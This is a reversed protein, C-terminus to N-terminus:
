SKLHDWGVGGFEKRHGDVELWRGEALPIVTGVPTVKTGTAAEVEEAAESAREPDITFVLEYDEGGHLALELPDRDLEVGELDVLPLRESQIIVGVGSADCIHRLDAAFGDSVDIMSSPVFRRLVEVEKVRPAPRNHAAVLDPRERNGARMLRLGAASAGLRGTVCVTDGVRAGGREVYRRGAPNGLMAVSIVLCQSRSIDGGVVAMGFADSCERMGRYLEELWELDIGPKIGISVLARRPTGAMAAIDSVNVAIAKYGIDSPKSLALDFHVGEVLLDATFLITGAPARLVATDDGVWVEGEPPEGVLQRLREILGFEGTESLKM